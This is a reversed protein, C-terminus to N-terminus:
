KKMVRDVSVGQESVVRVYYVGSPLTSIDVMSTRFVRQAIRGDTYFVEVLLVEGAEVSIMGSTPNPYIISAKNEVNSIDLDKAFMAMMEIDETMTVHRINETVGDDWRDFHYGENAFASIEVNRGYPYEGSGIVSGWDPNNSQLNLYFYATDFLATLVVNGRIVTDLIPITDGTEAWRDFEFGYNSTATVTATDLYNYDGGGRVQGQSSNYNTFLRYNNKTFLAEIMTDSMVLVTRPNSTDGDSWMTFHYGYNATAMVSATDGYLYTGDGAVWGCVNDYQITLTYTRRDFQASLLTDSTVIITRPNTTDGDSWMAFDCGVNTEVGVIATDKYQYTGTGTIAGCGYGSQANVQYQNRDFLATFVTDGRVTIMRPNLTVGDSWSTFHYGYNATASILVGSLYQYNGAGAVVGRVTDCQTSVNYENTWFLATLITDSSVVISRPNTTVSDSWMGFRYGYNPIAEIVRTSDQVVTGGGTVSGRLTNNSRVIVRYLNGIAFNVNFVTDSILGVIRPNTSIGDGWNVFHYGPSATATCSVMTTSGSLAYCVASASGMSTDIVNFRVNYPVFQATHTFSSWRGPYYSHSYSQYSSSSACPVSLVAHTDTETTFPKDFYYGTNYTDDWYYRSQLVPPVTGRCYVSDLLYPLPRRASNYSSLCLESAFAHAGITQLSAPLVVTKLRISDIEKAFYGSLQVVRGSGGPNYSAYMKFCDEGISLLGEPLDVRRLGNMNAFLGNGLHRVHPGFDISELSKLGSFPTYGGRIDEEPLESCITGASDCDYYLYTISSDDAFCDLGISQITSPLWVSDLKRCGVFACDGISQVGVPFRLKRLHRCDMFADAGISTLSDGFDFSTMLLNAFAGKGIRKLCTSNNVVVLRNAYGLTDSGAYIGGFMGSPIERVGAGIYITDYFPMVQRLHVTNSSPAVNPYSLAGAAYGRKTPLAVDAVDKAHLANFHVVRLSTCGTFIGFGITDVWEPIVVDHIQVCNKFLGTGLYRVNSPITLHAFSSVRSCGAFLYDPLSRVSDGIIINNLATCGSFYDNVLINIDAYHANVANYYVTTLNKMDSFTGRYLARVSEAIELTCPYTTDNTSFSSAAFCSDARYIVHRLRCNGFAYPKSMTINRPIELTDIGTCGRFANEGITTVSNPFNITSLRSQGFFANAAISVVTNPIATTYCGSLLRNTLTHIIANCSDRSDFTTNGQEVIISSLNVCGLFPNAYNIATNDYSLYINNAISVVTSPIVISTLSACNEFASAGITLLSDPLQIASMATCGKFAKEGIILLSAPLQIASMATCGSFALSGIELVSNPIVVSLIGSCRTFAGSSITTVPYSAGMYSVSSPIVLHGTPKTGSIWQYSPAVVEVGGSGFSYYLTQGSSCVASFDYGYALNIGAVLLIIFISLQKKM